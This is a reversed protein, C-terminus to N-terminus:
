DAGRLLIAFLTKGLGQAGIEPAALSGSRRIARCVAIRAWGEVLAVCGITAVRVILVM